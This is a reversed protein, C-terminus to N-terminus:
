KRQVNHKKKKVKDYFTRFETYRRITTYRLAGKEVEIEYGVFKGGSSDTASVARKVNISLREHKREVPTFDPDTSNLSSTVSDIL